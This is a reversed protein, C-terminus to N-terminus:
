CQLAGFEFSNLLSWQEGAYIPAHEAVLETGM